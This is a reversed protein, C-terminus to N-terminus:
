GRKTRRKGGKKQQTAVVVTLAILSAVALIPLVAATGPPAIPQRQYLAANADTQAKQQALLAADADTQPATDSWRLWSSLSDSASAAVGTAAAAALWRYATPVKTLLSWM